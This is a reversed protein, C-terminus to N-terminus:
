RILDVALQSLPEVLNGRADAEASSATGVQVRKKIGQVIAALRFLSFILYFNWNEIGSRGTREC